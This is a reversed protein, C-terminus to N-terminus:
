HRFTRVGTILCNADRSRCLEFTDEDRKSGGPHVLCKVGADLLIEPGDSFPFFADSAAVADGCAEIADGSKEVALRCATVRDVQGSGVGLLRGDGAIAIANSMLHKTVTWAILANIRENESPANGTAVQWRDPSALQRDRDQVLFGGGISRIDLGSRPTEIIDQIALLRVNPWRSSLQDVAEDSYSPALVVELFRATGTITSALSADVHSTMALIGGYAAMPDGAHAAEFAKSPDDSIAAGCPNTHKIVVAAPLNSSIHLDRCAEMAAVADNINNFSLPKGALQRASAIGAEQSSSDVYLAAKQHPNEGYRLVLERNAALEITEPMDDSSRRSMWSSIAADYRATRSFAAAALSRRLQMSTAGDQSTLESIVMDYQDPSTVVCVSEHNKASSRVMSPGGIDIQEIAEEDSIGEKQITREFPYLNICALDIPVIEHAEMAELHSPEDRRALLAGHIRPHLTKVRGDMIEPFGTVDAVDTVPIDAERLARATGGTSLLEIELRVLAKAFPILDSKDSVSLLARRVPVLDSM